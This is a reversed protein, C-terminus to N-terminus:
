AYMINFDVVPRSGAGNGAMNLDMVGFYVKVDKEDSKLRAVPLKEMLKRVLIKYENCTEDDL